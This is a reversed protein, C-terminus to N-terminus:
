RLLLVSTHIVRPGTLGPIQQPNHTPNRTTTGSYPQSNHTTPPYISPQPNYTEYEYLTTPQPPKEEQGSDSECLRKKEKFNELLVKLTPTLVSITVRIQHLNPGRTMHNNHTAPQLNRTAPKLNRTTPQPNRTVAPERRTSFRGRVVMQKKKGTGEGNVQLIM